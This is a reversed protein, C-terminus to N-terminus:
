AGCAQKRGDVLREEKGAGEGLGSRAADLGPPELAALAAGGHQQVGPAAPFARLAGRIAAAANPVSAAPVLGTSALSALLASGLEQVKEAKLCSEMGKIVAEAAHAVAAAQSRSKSAGRLCLLAACGTAQVEPVAKHRQLAAVIATAGGLFAVEERARPSGSAVYALAGCGAEQVDPMEPHARLANLAKGIGGLNGAIYDCMVKGGQAVLQSLIRLCFAQVAPWCHYVEILETATEAARRALRACNSSDGLKHAETPPQQAISQAAMLKKFGTGSLATYFSAFTVWDAEKRLAEEIQDKPFKFGMEGLDEVLWPLFDFSPERCPGWGHLERELAALYCWFSPNCKPRRGRREVMLDAASKLSLGAHRMMWALVILTSRSLGMQCHVLVNLGDEGWRRLAACGMPVAQTPDTVLEDMLEVHLYQIGSAEFRNPVRSAGATLNVVAKIQLADFIARDMAAFRTGLFVHDKIHFVKEQPNDSQQRRAATLSPELIAKWAPHTDM